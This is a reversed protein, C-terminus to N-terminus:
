ELAITNGSAASRYIAEVLAVSRRGEHGDVLSPRGARIASVFDNYLATHGAATIDMPRAAGSSVEAQETYAEEPDSLRWDLRAQGKHYIVSGTSGFFELREPYGPHAITTAQILGLRGGAYELIALAADEVEIAHNLTRTRATVREPLGALWILLDIAHIAQNILVGGGEHAWTGRWPGSRYYADTRHWLTNASVWLLRGLRGADLAAKLRISLPEFRGQFAVGLRVGARDCAAIMADCEAVNRAMPKECLVHAGAQAAALTMPAHLDHPTCIAVVDAQAQALLERYDAHWTGGHEAAFARGRDEQRTAVAVLEAGPVGRIAAAHIPAINGIGIIAFRM